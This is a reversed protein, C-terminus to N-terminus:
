TELVFVRTWVSLGHCYGDCYLGGPFRPTIMVVVMVAAM